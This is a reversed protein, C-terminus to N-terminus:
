ASAASPAHGRAPRLALGAQSRIDAALRRCATAGNAGGPTSAFTLSTEDLARLIRQADSPAVRILVSREADSDSATVPVVHPTQFEHTTM